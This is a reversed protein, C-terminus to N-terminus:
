GEETGLFITLTGLLNLRVQAIETSTYSILSPDEGIVKDMYELLPFMMHLDLFPSLCPTIDAAGTM